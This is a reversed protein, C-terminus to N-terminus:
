LIRRIRVREVRRKEDMTPWVGHTGSHKQLMAEVDIDDCDGGGVDQNRLWLYNARLCEDNAFIHLLTLAESAMQPTVHRGEQVFSFFGALTHHQRMDPYREILEFIRPYDRQTKQKNYIRYAIMLQADTQNLTRKLCLFCAFAEEDLEPMFKSKFYCRVLPKTNQRGKRCVFCQEDEGSQRVDTLVMYKLAYNDTFKKSM